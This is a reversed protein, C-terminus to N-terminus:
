VESLVRSIIKECHFSVFHQTIVGLFGKEPLRWPFGRIEFRVGKGPIGTEHITIGPIALIQGTLVMGFGKQGGIV